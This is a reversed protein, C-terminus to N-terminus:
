ARPRVEALHAEYVATVAHLDPRDERLGFAAGVHSRDAREHADDPRHPEILEVLQIRQIRPRSYITSFLEPPSIIQAGRRAAERVLRTATAINVAKDRHGGFQVGAIRVV